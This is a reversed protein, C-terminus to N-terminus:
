SRRARTSARRPRVRRPSKGLLHLDILNRLMEVDEADDREGYEDPDRNVVTRRAVHRGDEAAFEVQFVCMGTWSRHISLVDGELYIFWREEMEGPIRGRGIREFEEPTFSAKFDLIGTREPMPLVEWSNRDAREMTM